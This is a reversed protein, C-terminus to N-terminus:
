NVRILLSPPLCSSAVCSLYLITQAIETNCFITRELEDARAAFRATNLSAPELQTESLSRSSGFCVATPASPALQNHVNKLESIQKSGWVVSESAEKSGLNNVFVVQKQSQDLSKLIKGDCLPLTSCIAISCLVGGTAASDHYSEGAGCRRRGADDGEKRSSMQKRM